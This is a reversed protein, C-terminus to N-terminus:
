LSPWASSGNASAWTRCWGFPCLVPYRGSCWCSQCPPRWCGHWSPTTGPPRGLTPSDCTAPPEPRNTLGDAWFVWRFSVMAIFGGAAPGVAMGLNTVVRHLAFVARRRGPPALGALLAMVSPSFAQTFVAWLFVLGILAVSSRALPLLLLMLGSGWLSARLVRSPGLRDALWGALTASLLSGAGYILMVTGASRPTWHRGQVLYLALFPYAMTGMRNVLTCACLVWVPLPM